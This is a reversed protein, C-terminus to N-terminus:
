KGNEQIRIDIEEEHDKVLQELAQNIMEDDNEDPDADGNIEQIYADLSADLKSRVDAYQEAYESASMDLKEAQSDIFDRMDSDEDSDIISELMEKHIEQEESIDLNMKEAEQEILKLKVMGDLNALAKDDPYLFRLDGITIEEGRVVAATDDSSYDSVTLSKTQQCGLLVVSILIATWFIIAFKKM